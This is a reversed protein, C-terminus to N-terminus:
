FIERIEYTDPRELCQKTRRRIEEAVVVSKPNGAARYAAQQYLQRAFTHERRSLEETAGGMGIWEQKLEEIRQRNDPRKQTALAITKAELKRAYDMDRLTDRTSDYLSIMQEPIHRMEGLFAALDPEAKQQADLYAIMDKAFPYYRGNREFMVELHFCMDEAGGRVFAQKQVEQGAAFITQLVGTVDCTEGGIAFDPRMPWFAERGEVDLLGARVDDALTRAAIDMPSEVQRPTEETRELYYIIAEGQPPVQKGLSLMPKGESFWTPVVYSGIGGRWHEQKESEFRYTTKVDDEYLQTLWTAPFPPKWQIAVDREFFSQDLRQRHWIGPADLMALSVGKGGVFSIAGISKQGEGAGMLELRVSPMAEQWTTVLMSGRGKLLGLLMHESPVFVMKASPYDRPDYVLDDGVISPVLAVEIPASLTIGRTSGEPRIAVVRDSEFRFTVPLSGTGPAGFDAQVMVVGGQRAVTTTTIEGAAAGFPRVAAEGLPQEARGYVLVKGLRSAFAVVLGGTEVVLDGQLHGSAATTVTRWGQRQGVDAQGTLPAVTDWLRVAGGWGPGAQTAACGTVIVLFSLIVFGCAARRVKGAATMRVV